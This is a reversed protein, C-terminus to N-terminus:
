KSFRNKDPISRRDTASLRGILSFRGPRISRDLRFSAPKGVQAAALKAFAVSRTCPCISITLSRQEKCPLALFSVRGHFRRGELRPLRNRLRALRLVRAGTGFDRDRAPFGERRCGLAAILVADNIHRLVLPLLLVGPGDPGPKKLRWERFDHKAAIEFKLWHVQWIAPM